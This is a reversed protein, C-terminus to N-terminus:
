APQNDADAIAARPGPKKFDAWIVVHSITVELGHQAAVAQIKRRVEVDLDLSVNALKELDERFVHVVEKSELDDKIKSLIREM